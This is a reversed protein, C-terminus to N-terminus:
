NNPYFKAYIEPHANKFAQQEPVRMKMFKEKTIEGSVANSGGRPAGGAASLRREVETKVAAKFLKDFADITAQNGEADDTILIVDAFEASLGRASLVSKLESRAKEVAYQQLQAELEEIRSQAEAKARAEDDLKSLSLEKQFKKEQTKLAQSVRKDSESQILQTVEELTFTQQAEQAEIFENTENSINTEEM